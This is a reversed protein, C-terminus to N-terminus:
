PIEVFRRKKGWVSSLLVTIRVHDLRVNEKTNCKDDQVDCEKAYKVGDKGTYICGTFKRIHLYCAGNASFVSEVQALYPDAAGLESTIVLWTGEELHSGLHTVSHLWTVPTNPPVDLLQHELCLSPNHVEVGIEDGLVTSSHLAPPEFKLLYSSRRTWFQAIQLPVERWNGMKAAKKHEQNKAEFRMCWVGRPPGFVLIDAPLHQAFHNKPKWMAKYQDIALFLEQAKAISKELAHVDATTFSSKLAASFYQTHAVWALWVPDNLASEPLLPRLVEVSHIAFSLTEGSSYPLHGKPNPLGGAVGKVSVAPISPVRFHPGRAQNIAQNLDSRTFWKKRHIAMYLFAHGHSQLNGGTEVHMLDRGIMMMPRAHPIRTFTHDFTNIGVAAMYETCTCTCAADHSPCPPRPPRPGEGKKRRPARPRSAPRSKAHEQQQSYIANTRLEFKSPGTLFTNTCQHEGKTVNCQWCPSFTNKGFGAKTGLLAAGGLTDASYLLLWGRYSVPRTGARDPYPVQFTIGEPRDFRRLTAGFSSGDLPEGVPGQVVVSSGFAKQDSALVVSTLFIQNLDSRIHCPENLIVAYHLEVKFKGRASGLPCAIECADNYGGIGIRPPGCYTENGLEPHTRAALGDQAADYQGEPARPLKGWDVFHRAFEPNYFLERQIM